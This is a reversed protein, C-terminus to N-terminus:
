APPLELADLEQQLEAREERLLALTAEVQAIDSDYTALRARLENARTRQEDTIVSRVPTPAPTPATAEAGNAGRYEAILADAQEDSLVSKLGHRKIESHGHANVFWDYQRWGTKTNGMLGWSSLNNRTSTGATSFREVVLDSLKGPLPHRFRSEVHAHAALIRGAISDPKKLRKFDTPEGSGDPERSAASESEDVAPEAVPEHEPEPTPPPTPTRLEESAPPSAAPAIPEPEPAPKRVNRFIGRKALFTEAERPELEPIIGAVRIQERGEATVQFAGASDSTYWGHDKALKITEQRQPDTEIEERFFDGAIAGPLPQGNADIIVALNALHLLVQSTTVLEPEPKPAPLTPAPAPPEPARTPAPPTEKRAIQSAGTKNYPEDAHLRMLATVGNAIWSAINDLQQATLPHRPPIGILYDTRSPINEDNVRYRGMTADYALFGQKKMEQLSNNAREFYWDVVFLVPMPELGQSGLRQDLALLAMLCAHQAKTPQPKKDRDPKAM